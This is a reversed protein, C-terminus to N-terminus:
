KKMEKLLKKMDAPMEAHWELREGTTPHDLALYAAHLMPRKAGSADPIPKGHLPRDYVREGCLPTGAEGLHIRVQHTRGTELECEVLSFDGFTDLVRVHTIAHQGRVGPGPASGRRGDGRDPVFTSEIRQAKAQGRVLALYRRGTTHARFQQGLNREAESTRALVVLGSTERDIRHVARIRGKVPQGASALAAPLLDVLTPPLFRHARKGMAEVEDAHRVTTMGAPKQVVVIADDVHRIIIGHTAEAKKKPKADLQIHQGIKVRREPETCPQGSIRVRGDRLATLAQKRSLRFASQVVDLLLRNAQRRDIVLSAARM